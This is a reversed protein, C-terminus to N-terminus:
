HNKQSERSFLLLNCRFPHGYVLVIQSFWSSCARACRMLMLETKKNGFDRVNGEYRCFERANGPKGCLPWNQDSNSTLPLKNAPLMVLCTLENVVTTLTSSTWWTTQAEALSSCRHSTTFVMVWRLKRDCCLYMWACRHCFNQKIIM